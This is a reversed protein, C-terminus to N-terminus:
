GNYALQTINRVVLAGGTTNQVRIVIRDGQEVVDTFYMEDPVIPYNTKIYTAHAEAIVDAGASINTITGTAAATVGMSIIGRGRAFEFLSGSLINDNTSNAGVSVEKVIMPQCARVGAGVSFLTKM